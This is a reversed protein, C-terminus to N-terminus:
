LKQEEEVFISANGVNLWQIMNLFANYRVTLAICSARDKATGLAKQCCPTLLSQGRTYALLLLIAVISSSFCIDDRERSTLHAHSADLM